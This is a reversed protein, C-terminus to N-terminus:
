FSNLVLSCEMFKSSFLPESRNIYRICNCFKAFDNEFKPIYDGFFGSIAGKNMADAVCNTELHDLAPQSVAIKITM